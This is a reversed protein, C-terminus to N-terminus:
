KYSKLDYRELRRKMMSRSIGLLRAAEAVNRHSKEMADHVLRREMRDLENFQEALSSTQKPVVVGESSRVRPSLDSPRITGGECHIIAREVENRLERVNGPWSHAQLASIADASFGDIHKTARQAAHQLLARALLPVDDLRARLPPVTLEIVNLRYYLDERFRKAEVEHVLNKHTAAMIRVDVRLTRESGLPQVEGEEVARLVKAQAALSLDGIEDLFLTGGHAQVFKGKQDRAAGTFAGKDHGFLMSEIMTDPIAACNVALFLRDRRASQAHLTLAVLEKGSGSEGHILVHADSARAYKQIDARLRQMAPSDGLLVTQPERAALSDALMTARQYREFGRLAASTVQALAGLFELDEQTFRSAGSRREVYIVGLVRGNLQLPTAIAWREGSNGLILAERRKILADIVTRDVVVEDTTGARAWRLQRLGGEELLGVLGRSGAMAEVTAELLKKLLTESDESQTLGRALEYLWRLRPTLSDTGIAPIGEIATDQHHVIELSQEGAFYRLSVKGLRLEDGDQLLRRIGPEGNILTGHKSGLDVVALGAAESEFVLHRRSVHRDLLRLDNEEHRGVTFGPQISLSFAIRDPESVVVFAM